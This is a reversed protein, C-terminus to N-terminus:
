MGPTYSLARLEYPTIGLLAGVKDFVGTGYKTNYTGWSNSISDIYGKESGELFGTTRTSAFIANPGLWDLIKRQQFNEFLTTIIQNMFTAYFDKQKPINHGKLNLIKHVGRPLCRANVQARRPGLHRQTNCYRRWKKKGYLYKLFPLVNQTQGKLLEQEIKQYVKPYIILTTRIEYGKLEGKGIYFSDDILDRSSQTPFINEIKQFIKKLKTHSASWGKWLFDIKTTMTKETSSGLETETTYYSSRSSGYFSQAPDAAEQGFNLYQTFTNLISNLFSMYNKGDRGYHSSSYLHKQRQELSYHPYKKEPLTISVYHNLKMRQSQFWLFKITSLRGQVSHELLHPSYHDQLSYTSNKTFLEYLVKLTVNLEDNNKPSLPLHFVLSNQKGKLWKITGKLIEIFYNLGMSLGKELNKQKQITVELYDSKKRLTVSRLIGKNLEAGVSTNLQEGLYIDLPINAKAASNLQIHDSIMFTENKAFENLFEKLNKEKQDNIESNCVKEKHIPVLLIIDESVGSAILENRKDIATAKSNETQTDYKIYVVDNNNLEDYIVSVPGSLSCEYEFQIIGGLRKMLRPVLVKTLRQSSATTLDPMARVHTYTRNFSVGASVSPLVQKDVGTFLSFIGLGIDGSVSDVLQIPASNGLHKGFVISRKFSTNIQATPYSFSKLPITGDSLSHEEKYRTIKNQLKKAADSTTIEPVIKDIAEELAKSLANYTLQTRFLRFIQGYAFPSDEIDHYFQTVYHQYQDSQLNSNRINATTLAYNPHFRIKENLHEGLSNIRSLLKELVLLKIEQPYGTSEIVQTMQQRDLKTLRRYIWKIDNISVDSFEQAYPHRLSLQSNFINGIKWSIANISQPFDTLVYIPLLARFIRRTKQRNKSMLPFYINVNNLRASSLTQDKLILEKEQANQVVWKEKQTLTKEGLVQLFNLKEQKTKFVVTLKKHFTPPTIDYGLKRLLNARLINTHNHLSASLNLRQGTQADIVNARFFETPSNKISEFEVKTTPAKQDIKHTTNQWLHSEYPNLRSLDINKQKLKFAQYKDIRKGQFTLDSAPAIENNDPDLPINIVSGLTAPTFAFSSFFLITFYKHWKVM